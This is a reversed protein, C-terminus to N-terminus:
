FTYGLGLSFTDVDITTVKFKQYGGIFQTKKHYYKLLVNSKTLNEQNIVTSNISAYLSIPKKFFWEAGIGYAFGTKNVNNAVHMVGLGYWLDIKQTRIRHYNLMASFLSFNDTTFNTKENLELYGLNVDLRKAFRFQLNANNGYLSTSERLWSDTVSFRYLVSLNDTYSYNGIKNEIYPYKSIAARHMKSEKEFITEIAIGYTINWMIQVFLDQFPHFSNSDKNNTTDSDNIYQNMDKQQKLNQKARHLKGTQSFISNTFILSLLLIITTSKMFFYNRNLGCFYNWKNLCMSQKFIQYENM